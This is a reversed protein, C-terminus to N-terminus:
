GVPSRHFHVHKWQGDTKRWIRSEAFAQSVPGEPTETQVVRTYAIAAADPGLEWVVPSCMTSQWRASEAGGVFYYMHFGLGSVIQGCTEPEFCTLEPDSLEEYAAWDREAVASLLRRTIAIIEDHM